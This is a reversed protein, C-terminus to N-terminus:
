SNWWWKIRAIIGPNMMEEIEREDALRARVVDETMRLDGSIAAVEQADRYAPVRLEDQGLTNKVFM